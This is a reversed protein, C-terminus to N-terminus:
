RQNSKEMECCFTCQSISLGKVPSPASHFLIFSNLSNNIINISEMSLYTIFLCIHEYLIVFSYVLLYYQEKTNIWPLSLSPPQVTQHMYLAAIFGVSPNSGHKLRDHAGSSM